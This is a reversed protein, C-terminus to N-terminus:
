FFDSTGQIYTLDEHHLGCFFGNHEIHVSFLDPDGGSYLYCLHTKNEVFIQLWHISFILLVYYESSCINLTDLTKLSNCDYLLMVALM